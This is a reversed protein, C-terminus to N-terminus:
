VKGFAFKSILSEIDIASETERIKGKNPILKDSAGPTIQIYKEGILGETRISAIADEQLKVNRYIVLEVLAQYNELKVTNVKGVSVGAIEVSAGQKIGGDNDFEAFVTYGPKGIVELKGLKISIFALSIIGFILFLGVVLEANSEKM